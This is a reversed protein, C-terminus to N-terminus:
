WYYIHPKRYDPWIGDDAEVQEIGGGCFMCFEAGNDAPSGDEFLFEHGCSTEWVGDSDEAWTCDAM